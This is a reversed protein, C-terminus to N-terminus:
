DDELNPVEGPLGLLRLDGLVINMAEGDLSKATIKLRLADTVDVDLGIQEGFGVVETHVKREDLFIEVQVETQTQEAEDHRGLTGLLQRYGKRLDWSIEAEDYWRYSVLSHPFSDGGIRASDSDFGQSSVADLDALYRTVPQRAVTLAVQEPLPDGATVDQALVENDRADEDFDEVVEIRTGRLETRAASLTKGVVDPMVAAQTEEETPEPTTQTTAETTGGAVTEEDAATGETSEDTPAAAAAPTPEESVAVVDDPDDATDRLMFWWIAAAALAAILGAGMLIPVLRGSRRQPEPRAGRGHGGAGRRGAAAGGGDGDGDSGARHAATASAVGAGAMTAGRDIRETAGQSSQPPAGLAPAADAGRLQETMATLYPVLQAASPRDSPDKALMTSIASWLPDPIGDPRGPAVEAHRKIVALYNDGEFPTVGAALEYLIVGLGYVDVAPTPTLGEAVEPAMYNPTGIMMSSRTVASADAIRAIGFDTVRPRAPDVSTDLLVNEPKVDRHVLGARHVAALGAAIGSGLRAVEAPPLTRHAKLLARLDSGEVLDMVIALTSGEVVLDHMAVVNPHDVVTLSSREQVFRQVLEPQDALESRLVKFAFSQGEADRGRYVTGMAGSGLREELVYRSGLREEAM